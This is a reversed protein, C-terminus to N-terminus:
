SNRCDRVSQTPAVARQAISHLLLRLIAIAAPHCAHIFSCNFPNSIILLDIYSLGADLFYEYLLFQDVGGITMGSVDISLIVDVIIGWCAVDGRLYALVKNNNLNGLLM